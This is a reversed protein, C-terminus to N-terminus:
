SQKLKDFKDIELTVQISAKTNRRVHLKVYYVADRFDINYEFYIGKASNRDTVLIPEKDSVFSVGALNPYLEITAGGGKKNGMIKFFAPNKGLSLGYEAMELFINSGLDAQSTLWAAMKIAAFKDFADKKNTWTTSSQDNKGPKFMNSKERLMEALYGRRMNLDKLGANIDTKFLEEDKTDVNYEKVIDGAKPLAGKAKGHRAQQEKLSIGVIPKKKGGWKYEFLRNIKGLREVPSRSAVADSILFDLSKLASPKVLMIDMPCWKDSVREAAYGGARKVESFLKARHVSYNNYAEAIVRGSSKANNISEQIGKNWSKDLANELFGIEAALSHKGVYIGRGELDGNMRDLLKEIQAHYNEKTLPTFDNDKKSYVCVLIEKFHTSVKTSDPKTSSLTVFKWDKDSSLKYEITPYTDSYEINPRIVNIPKSGPDIIVHEMNEDGFFKKLDLVVQESGKNGLVFMRGDQSHAGYNKNDNKVFAWIGNTGKRKMSGKTSRGETILGEHLKYWESYKPLKNQM